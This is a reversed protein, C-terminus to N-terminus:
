KSNSVNTPIHPGPYERLNDPCGKVRAGVGFAIVTHKRTYVLSLSNTAMHITLLIIVSTRCGIAVTSMLKEGIPVSFVLGLSLVIRFILTCCGIHQRHVRRMRYSLWSQLIAYVGGFIFGGVAGIFHVASINVDQFMLM